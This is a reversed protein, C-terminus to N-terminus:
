KWPTRALHIYTYVYSSVRVLSFLLSHISDRHISPLRRSAGRGSAKRGESSFPICFNRWRGGLFRADLNILFSQNENSIENSFWSRHEKSIAISKRHVLLNRVPVTRHIIVTRKISSSSPDVPHKGPSSCGPRQSVPLWFATLSVLYDGPLRSLNRAFNHHASKGVTKRAM